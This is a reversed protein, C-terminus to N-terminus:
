RGRGRGVPCREIYAQAAADAEELTVFYAVPDGGGTMSTMHSRDASLGNWYYWGGDPIARPHDCLVYGEWDKSSVAYLPHDPNGVKYVPWTYLEIM